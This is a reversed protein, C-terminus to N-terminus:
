TSLTWRRHVFVTSSCRSYRETDEILFVTACCRAYLETSLTWRRDSFCYLLMKLIFSLLSLGDEIVFFLLLFGTSISICCDPATLSDIQRLWYTVHCARLSFGDEIVFFLLLFGYLYLHLLGACDLFWDPASLLDRSLSLLSPGDEIVFVTCACKSYAHACSSIFAWLFWWPRVGVLM